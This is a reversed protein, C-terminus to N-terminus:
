VPQSQNLALGLPTELRNRVLHIPRRFFFAQLKTPLTLSGGQPLGQRGSARLILKLLHMVQDDNVRRAVQELVQHHRVTDCYARLDLDIVYTKGELIAESVRQIADHASKKPRYGYSGPQFDAQLTPRSTVWGSGEGSGYQSIAVM